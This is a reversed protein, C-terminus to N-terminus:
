RTRVHRCDISTIVNKLPKEACSIRLQEEIMNLERVTEADEIEFRLISDDVIYRTSKYHMIRRNTWYKNSRRKSQKESFITSCTDYLKKVIYDSANKLYIDATFRYRAASGM